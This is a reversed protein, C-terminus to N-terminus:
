RSYHAVVQAVAEDEDLEGAAVQALLAMGIPGPDAGDARVSVISETVAAQAATRELDHFRDLSVLVADPGAASGVFVTDASRQRVRLLAAPLDSPGVTVPEPTSVTRLM